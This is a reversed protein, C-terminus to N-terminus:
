QEKVFGVHTPYEAPGTDELFRKRPTVIIAGSAYKYGHFNAFRVAHEIAWQSSNRNFCVLNADVYVEVWEIEPEPKPEPKYTAKIHYARYLYFHDNGDQSLWRVGAATSLAYLECNKIGVKVFCARDDNSLEGHVRINKQLKEILNNM